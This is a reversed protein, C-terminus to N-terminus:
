CNTSTKKVTDGTDGDTKTVKKTSCGADDHVVVGAAPAPVPDVVVPESHTTTTTSKIVEDAFVPTGAGLWCVAAAIVAIKSNM